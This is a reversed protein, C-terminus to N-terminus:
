ACHNDLLTVMDETVLTYPTGVDQIFERSVPRHVFKGNEDVLVVTVYGERVPVPINLVHTM